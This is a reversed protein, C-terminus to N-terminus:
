GTTGGDGDEEREAPAGMGAETALEDLVQALAEELGKVAEGRLARQHRLTRALREVARGVTELDTATEAAVRRIMVRLLAVEDALADRAVADALSALEEATFLDAYFNAARRGMRPSARRTSRREPREDGMKTGQQRRM